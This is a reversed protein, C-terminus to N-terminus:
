PTFQIKMWVDLIGQGMSGRSPGSGQGGGGKQGGGMGGSGGRHGGARQGDNMGGGQGDRLDPRKSTSVIGLGLKKNIDFTEGLMATPIQFEIFLTEDHSNASALLDAPGLSKGAKTDIVVVTLDGDIRPVQGATGNRRLQGGDQYQDRQYAGPRRGSALAGEIKLGLNQRKRGKTDLWLTLGRLALQRQFDKDISSIAVYVYNKNHSVGLAFREGDPIQFKGTWETRQGDIRFENTAKQSLYSSSCASLIIVLSLLGAPKWMM